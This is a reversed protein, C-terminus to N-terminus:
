QAAIIWSIWSEFRQLSQQLTGSGSNRTEEIVAEEVGEGRAACLIQFLARRGRAFSKM